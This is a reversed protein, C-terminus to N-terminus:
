PPTTPSTTPTTPTSIGALGLITANGQIRRDILRNNNRDLEQQSIAQQRANEAQQKLGAATLTTLDALKNTQIAQTEAQKSLLQKIDGLEELSNDHQSGAM